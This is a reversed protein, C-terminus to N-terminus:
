KYHTFKYKSFIKAFTTINESIHLNNIFLYHRLAYYEYKKIYTKQSTM